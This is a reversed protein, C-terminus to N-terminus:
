KTAVSKKATAKSKQKEGGKSAKEATLVKDRKRCQMPTMQYYKYFTKYFFSKNNFGVMMAIKQIAYETTLLLEQAREIRKRMVYESLPMAYRERFIRSFYSPNYFCKKSLASLSLDQDLNEEIYRSIDQWIDESDIEGSVKRMIKLLLLQMYANIAMERQMHKSEQERIMSNLLEELETRASGIFTIVGQKGQFIEEFASLPFVGFANDTTAVEEVEEPYFAVNIYCFGDAPVYAHTSGKNIVLLDGRKVVYEVGDVIQVASGDRVYVIEIFDHIHTDLPLKTNARSVHLIPDNRDWANKSYVKM